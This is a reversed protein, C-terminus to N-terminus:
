TSAKDFDRSWVSPPLLCLLTKSPGTVGCFAPSWGPNSPCSRASWGPEPDPHSLRGLLCAPARERGEWGTGPTGPPCPSRHCIGVEQNVRQLPAQRARSNSWHQSVQIRAGARAIAITSRQHGIGLGSLGSGGRNPPIEITDRLADQLWKEPFIAQASLFWIQGTLGEGVGEEKSPM